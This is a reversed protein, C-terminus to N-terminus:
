PPVSDHVGDSWCPASKLLLAQQFISELVGGTGREQTIKVGCGFTVSDVESPRTAGSWRRLRKWGQMLSDCHQKAKDNARLDSGRKRARLYARSGHHYVSRPFSHWTCCRRWLPAARRAFWAAAPPKAAAENKVNVLICVKTIVCVDRLSEWQHAGQVADLRAAAGAWRAEKDATHVDAWWGRPRGLLVTVCVFVCRSAAAAVSGQGGM